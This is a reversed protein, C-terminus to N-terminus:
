GGGGQKWSEVSIDMRDNVLRINGAGPAEGGLAGLSQLRGTIEAQRKEESQLESEFRSPHRYHAQMQASLTELEASLIESERQGATKANEEEMVQNYVKVGEILARDRASQPIPAPQNKAEEAMREQWKEFDSNAKM